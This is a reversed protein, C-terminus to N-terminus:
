NRQMGLRTLYRWIGELPGYRFYKLWVTCFLMQVVFLGVGILFLTAADFYGYMGLGWPFLLWTMIIGQTIYCTLTCRGISRLPHLLKQLCNLNYVWALFPAIFLLSCEDSIWKMYQSVMLIRQNELSLYLYVASYYLVCSVAFIAGGILAVKFLEKQSREFIKLKGAVVGLLFMGITAFLRGSPLEWYLWRSLWQGSINKLAVESWDTTQAIYLPKFSIIKGIFVSVLNPEGGIIEMIKLPQLLFFLSFCLLLRWSLKWLVVLGLGLVAFLTLVDDQYFSIHILGFSVVM